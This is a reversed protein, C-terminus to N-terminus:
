LQIVCDLLTNICYKVLSSSIVTYIDYDIAYIYYLFGEKRSVVAANGLVTCVNLEQVLRGPAQWHRTTCVGMSLMDFSTLWVCWRGM